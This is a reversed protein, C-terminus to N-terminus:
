LWATGVYLRVSAQLRMTVAGRRRGLRAGSATPRICVRACTCKFSYGCRRGRCDHLRGSRRRYLWAREGGVGGAVEAGSGAAHLWGQLGGCMTRWGCTVWRRVAGGRCVTTECARWRATNWAAARQEGGLVRRKYCRVEAGTTIRAGTASRGAGASSCRRVAAGAHKTAVGLATASQKSCAVAGHFAAGAGSAQQECVAADDHWM